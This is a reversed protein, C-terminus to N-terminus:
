TSSSVLRGEEARRSIERDAYLKATRKLEQRAENLDAAVTVMESQKNRVYLSRDGFFLIACVFSKDLILARPFKCNLIYIFMCHTHTRCTGSFCLQAAISMVPHRDCVLLRAVTM